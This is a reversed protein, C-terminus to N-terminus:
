LPISFRITTGHNVAGTIQLHGELLYLLEDAKHLGSYWPANTRDEDRIGKGNDSLFVDIERGTVQVRLRVQNAEAHQIINEMFIDLLRYLTLGRIYPIVLSEDRVSVSAELVFEPHADRLAMIWKDLSQAIPATEDFTPQLRDLQERLTSWIDKRRSIMEGIILSAQRPDNQILRKLQEMRQSEAELPQQVRKSLIAKLYARNFADLNLIREGHGSTDAVDEPPEIFEIIDEPDETDTFAPDRSLRATAHLAKRLMQLKSEIGALKEQEVNLQETLAEKRETLERISKELQSEKETNQDDLPIPSFVNKRSSANMAYLSRTRGKEDLRIDLEFLEQRIAQIRTSAENEKKSFYSQMETTAKLISTLQEKKDM